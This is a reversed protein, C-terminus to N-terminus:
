KGELKRLAEDFYTEFKVDNVANQLSPRPAIYVGRSDTGGYEIRHAYVPAERTLGYGFELHDTGHTMWGLSDRLIGTLNAHTQGPASAQHWRAKKLKRGGAGRYVRYWNGTKSARDNIAARTKKKLDRGMRFFTQRIAQRTNESFNEIFAITKQSPGDMTIQVRM